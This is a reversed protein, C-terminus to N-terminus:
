LGLKLQWIGAARLLSGLWTNVAPSCVGRGRSGGYQRMCFSHTEFGESPGQLLDGCGGGPGEDSGVEVQEIPPPQGLCAVTAEPLIAQVM